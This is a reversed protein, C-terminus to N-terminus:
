GYGHGAACGALSARAQLSFSPQFRILLEHMAQQVEDREYRQFLDCLENAFV